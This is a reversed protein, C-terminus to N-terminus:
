IYNIKYRLITKGQQITLEVAVSLSKSPDHADLEKKYANAILPLHYFQPSVKVVNMVVSYHPDKNFLLFFLVSSIAQMVITFFERTM